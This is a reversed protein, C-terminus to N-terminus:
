LENEKETYVRKLEDKMSNWAPYMGLMTVTIHDMLRDELLDIPGDPNDITVVKARQFIGRDLAERVRDFMSPDVPDASRGYMNGSFKFSFLGPVGAAAAIMNSGWNGPNQVKTAAPMWISCRIEKINGRNEAARAVADENVYPAFYFANVSGPYNYNVVDAIVQTSRQFQTVQFLLAQHAVSYAFHGKEIIHQGNELQIEEDQEKVKGIHPADDRYAKIEGFILDDSIDIIRIGNRRSESLWENGVGLAKLADSLQPAKDAENVNLGKYFQVKFKKPGQNPM